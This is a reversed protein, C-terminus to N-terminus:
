DTAIARRANGGAAGKLNIRMVFQVLRGDPASTSGHSINAALALFGANFYCM